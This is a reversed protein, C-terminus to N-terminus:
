GGQRGPGFVARFLSLSKHFCHRLLSYAVAFLINAVKYSRQAAWLRPKDVALGYGQVPTLNIQALPNSLPLVM